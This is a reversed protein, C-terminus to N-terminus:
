PNANNIFSQPLRDLLYDLQYLNLPLNSVYPTNIVVYKCETENQALNRCPQEVPVDEDDSNFFINGILDDVITLPFSLQLTESEPDCFAYISSRKRKGDVAMEHGFFQCFQCQVCSVAGSADKAVLLLEY